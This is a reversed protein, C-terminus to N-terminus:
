EVSKVVETAASDVVAAASDVVASAASDVAEVAPEVVEEVKKNANNGCAVAAMMMAVISLSLIVKKM